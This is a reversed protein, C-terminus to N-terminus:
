ARDPTSRRGIWRGARAVAGARLEPPVAVWWYCLIAVLGISLTLAGRVIAPMTGNELPPLLLLSAALATATLLGMYTSLLLRRATPGDVCGTRALLITHVVSGLLLSSMAAICLGLLGLRPVLLVALGLSVFAELYVPYLSLGQRGIALMALGKPLNIERVIMVVMYAALAGAHEASFRATTVLHLLLPLGAAVGVAITLLGTGLLPTGRTIIDGTRRRDGSDQAFRESLEPLLNSLVAWVLGSILGLLSLSVSFPVVADPVQRAVLVAHVGILPIQAMGSLAAPIAMAFLGAFRARIAPWDSPGILRWERGVMWLAFGLTLLAAVLYGLAVSRATGILLAATACLVTVSGHRLLNLPVLRDVRFIGQLYGSLAHLPLLAATGVIALLFLAEWSGEALARTAPAAFVAARDLGILLATALTAAVLLSAGSAVLLALQIRPQEGHRAVLTSSAPGIGLHLHGIYTCISLAYLWAAAEPPTLTRVLVAPLVLAPLVSLLGLAVSRIANFSFRAASM